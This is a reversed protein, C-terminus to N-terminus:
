EPVRALWRVCIGVGAEFTSSERLRACFPMIIMELSFDPFFEVEVGSM